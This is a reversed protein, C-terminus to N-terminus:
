EKSEEQPPRTWKHSLIGEINIRELPNPNLMRLILDKFDDSVDDFIFFDNFYSLIEPNLVTTSIIDYKRFGKEFENFKDCDIVSELKEFPNTRM